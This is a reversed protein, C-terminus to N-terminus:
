LKVIEQKVEFLFSNQKKYYSVTEENNTISIYMNGNLEIMEDVAILACRKPVTRDHRTTMVYTDISEFKNVLEIAKEKATM